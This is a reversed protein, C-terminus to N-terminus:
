VVSKRDATIGNAFYFPQTGDVAGTFAVTAKTLSPSCNTFSVTFPVNDTSDGENIFDTPLYTGLEVTAPYSVNCSGAVINGTVSFNIVDQTNYALASPLGAVFLLSTAAMRRVTAFHFRSM